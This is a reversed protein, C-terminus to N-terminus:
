TALGGPAYKGCIRFIVNSVGGVQHQMCYGLYATTGSHNQVSIYQNSSGTTAGAPTVASVKIGISTGAWVSAARNVPYRAMGTSAVSIDCTVGSPSGDIAVGLFWNKLLALVGKTAAQTVNSFPYAYYDAKQGSKSGSITTVGAIVIFDGPEVTQNGKVPVKIENLEGRVIRNQGSM